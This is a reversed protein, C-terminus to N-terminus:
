ALSGVFLSTALCFSGTQSCPVSSYICPKTDEVFDTVETHASHLLCAWCWTCKACAVRQQNELLMFEWTHLLSSLLVTGVVLIFWGQICTHLTPSTPCTMLYSSLAHKACGM